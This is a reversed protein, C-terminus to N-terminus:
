SRSRCNGLSPSSDKSPVRREGDLKELRNLAPIALVLADTDDAPLQDILGAFVEVIARQRARVYDLGDSSLAVLVVRKDNPDASRQVLGSHELASVLATMSPQAVGESAALDTIRRAGTAELTSLTSLSTLSLDRPQSRVVAAILGQLARGAAVSGSRQARQPGQLRTSM